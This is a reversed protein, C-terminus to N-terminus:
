QSQDDFTLAGNYSGILNAFETVPENGYYNTEFVFSVSYTGDANRVLNLSVDDFGDNWYEGSADTYSAEMIRYGSTSNVRFEQQEFDYSVTPTRLYFYFQNGTEEDFLYLDFELRSGSQGYYILTGSHLTGKATITGYNDESYSGGTVVAKITTFSLQTERTIGGTDVAVVKAKYTRDEELATFTYSTDSLAEEILLDDLYVAYTIATGEPDLSKTWHISAEASGVDGLSLSFASPPYNTVTTFYSSKREELGSTSKAVVLVFYDTSSALGTFQYSMAGYDSALLAYDLSISNNLYIDFSVQSGDNSLVPDWKISATTLGTEVVQISMGTLAPEIVEDTNDDTCSYLLSFLAFITILRKM